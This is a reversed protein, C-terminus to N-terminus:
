YVADLMYDENQHEALIYDYGNFKQISEIDESLVKDKEDEYFHQSDLEESFPVTRSGLEEEISASNEDVRVMGDTQAPSNLLLLILALKPDENRQESSKSPNQGHAETTSENYRLQFKPKQTSYDQPSAPWPKGPGVSQPINGSGTSGGWFSPLQGPPRITMIPTGVANPKNSDPYREPPKAMLRDEFTPKAFGPYDEPRAPWPMGPKVSQPIHASGTSGGFFSPLQSPPRITMTSTQGPAGNQQGPTLWPYKQAYIQQITPGNSQEEFRDELHTAHQTGGTSLIISPADTKVEVWRDPVKSKNYAATLWPYKEQKM